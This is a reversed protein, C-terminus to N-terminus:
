RSLCFEKDAETVPHRCLEEAFREGMEIEAPLFTSLLLYATLVIVLCLGAMIFISGWAESSLTESVM